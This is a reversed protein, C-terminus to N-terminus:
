CGCAENNEEDDKDEGDDDSVYKATIWGKDYTGAIYFIDDDEVAIEKISQFRDNNKEWSYQGGSDYTLIASISSNSEQELSEPISKEGEAKLFSRPPTIGEVRVTSSCLHCAPQM